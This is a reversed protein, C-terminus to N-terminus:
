LTTVMEEEIQLAFKLHEREKLVLVYKDFTNGVVGVSSYEALLLDMEM